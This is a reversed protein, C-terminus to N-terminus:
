RRKGRCLGDVFSELQKRQDDSLRKLVDGYRNDADARFVAAMNRQNGLTDTHCGAAIAFLGDAILEAMDALREISQAVESVYPESVAPRRFKPLAFRDLFALFSM